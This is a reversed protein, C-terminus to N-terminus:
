VVSKQQGASLVVPKPLVVIPSTRSPVLQSLNGIGDNANHIEVASQLEAEFRYEVKAKGRNVIGVGWDPRFLRKDRLAIPEFLLETTYGLVKEADVLGTGVQVPPATANGSHSQSDATTHAPWGVSRGSAIIRKALRRAFESGHIERGGRHGIFLAAVGAIYPAAMSTGDMAKFGQNLTTSMVNVGPAGIDPKLWLENTPGWSTFQAPTLRVKKSNADKTINIAAVSLVGRGNCGDGSSFPGDSGDNGASITM